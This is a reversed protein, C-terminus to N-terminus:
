EKDSIKYETLFNRYKMCQCIWFWFDNIVTIIVKRKEFPIGPNTQLITNLKVVRNVKSLKYIQHKSNREAFFGESGRKLSQILVDTRVL